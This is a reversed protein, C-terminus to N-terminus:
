DESTELTALNYVLDFQEWVYRVLLRDPGTVWVQSSGAMTIHETEFTGAPVTLTEKGHHVFSQEEVAGLMPRVWDASGNINYVYGSQETRIDPDLHWSHWGDMALPHVILSFNDPAFQRHEVLGIPGNVRAYLQGGQVTYVGTGKLRGQTYLSMYAELPRFRDDVRLVGTLHVDRVTIDTTARMTRTGDPHVTMLFTESGRKTGDSLKLYEYSGRAWREINANDTSPALMQAHTIGTFFAFILSYLVARM